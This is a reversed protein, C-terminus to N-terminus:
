DGIAVIPSHTIRSTEINVHISIKALMVSEHLVITLLGRESLISYLLYNHEFMDSKGDEDMKMGVCASASSLSTRTQCLTKGGISHVPGSGMSM